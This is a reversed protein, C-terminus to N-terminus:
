WDLMEYGLQEFETSCMENIKKGTETDIMERWDPRAAPNKDTVVVTPNVFPLETTTNLLDISKLEDSLQEFKLVRNINNRQLYVTQPIIHMYKARVHSKSFDSERQRQELVTLFNYLTNGLGQKKMDAIYDRKDIGRKCVSWWLSCLRDYPNRVVCFSFFTQYSPPIDLQHSPRLEGPGANPFQEHLFKLISRTGTKPIDIYVFKPNNSIFM